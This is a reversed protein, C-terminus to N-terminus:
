MSINNNLEFSIKEEECKKKGIKRRPKMSVKHYGLTWLSEKSNKELMNKSYKEVAKEM